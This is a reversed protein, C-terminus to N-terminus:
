LRKTEFTRRPQMWTDPYDEIVTGTAISERAEQFRIRRIITQDLGRQSFEFATALVKERGPSRRNSALSSTANM